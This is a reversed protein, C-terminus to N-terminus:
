AIGVARRARTLVQDAAARARQEGRQVVSLIFDRNQALEARRERMPRLADWLLGFLQKKYEGYGVGGARMSAEMDAVQEATGACRALALIISDEVPKPDAVGTSDTKIGMVAKRFENEPAFLGITNRYSKSMKQGDVGPLTGTEDRIAPEPIKFTSGYAQNFKQALDRAVELHQKQDKGVPVIDAEYLLIDAAMLVPYAFLGHNPSIGREVKDKYSHCRELLGMPAVNSLYWALEHVEPVASQRFLVTKEADLGCALFDMAVEISRDKLTSVDELSTLAHYDAIFYFCEGKAQLEVSPRMMGFYNGLHPAGSPQIGSLIRM